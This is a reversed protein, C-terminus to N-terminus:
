GSGRGEGLWLSSTTLLGATPVLRCAPGRRGVLVWLRVGFLLEEEVDVTLVVIQDHLHYLWVPGMKVEFATCLIHHVGRLETVLGQCLQEKLALIDGYRLKSRFVWEVLEDFWGTIVLVTATPIITSIASESGFAGSSM